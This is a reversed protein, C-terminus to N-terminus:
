LSFRTKIANFNEEVEDTSLVKNYVRILPIRGVCSWSGDWNGIYFRRINGSSLTPNSQTSSQQLNGDIYVKHAGDSNDHTISVNYYRNMEIDYDSLGTGYIKNGTYNQGRFALYHNWYYNWIGDYNTGGSTTWTGYGTRKFVVEITYGDYGPLNFPGTTGAFDENTGSIQMRTARDAGFQFYQSTTVVDTEIQFARGEHDPSLFGENSAPVGFQYNAMNSADIQGVLGDTIINPGGITGM